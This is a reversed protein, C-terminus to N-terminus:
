AARRRRLHLAVAITTGGTVALAAWPAAFDGTQPLKAKAPAAQAATNGQQNAPQTPKDDVPQVPTNDQPKDPAVETLIQFSASLEGTFNGKGTFVITATGVEVNDRYTVDYDKGEVLTYDGLTLVPLQTIAEGTHAKDEIGALSVQAIDAPDIYFKAAILLGTYDGAGILDVWHEGVDTFGDSDLTKEWVYDVGEVLTKGDHVLVPAQEHGNFTAHQIDAVRIDYKSGDEAAMVQPTIDIEDDYVDKVVYQETLGKGDGTTDAIDDINAVDTYVIQISSANDATLVFESKSIPVYARSFMGEAMTSSMLSLETKLESVPIPRLGSEEGVFCLSNLTYVGDGSEVFNLLLPEPEDSGAKHYTVFVVPEITPNCDIVHLTGQADKIAYWKGEFAKVDWTSTTSKVFQEIYDRLFNDSASSLAQEEVAVEEGDGVALADLKGEIAGLSLGYKGDGVTAYDYRGELQSLYAEAVPLEALVNCNVSQIQRQRTNAIRIRHGTGTKQVVDLSTVDGKFVAEAAQQAVLQSLWEQTEQPMDPYCDILDDPNPADNVHQLLPM